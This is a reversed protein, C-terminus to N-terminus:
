MLKITFHTRNNITCLATNPLIPIPNIISVSKKVLKKKLLKKKSESPDNM